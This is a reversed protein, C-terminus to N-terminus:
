VLVGAEVGRSPELEVGVQIQVGVPGDDHGRVVKAVQLVRM